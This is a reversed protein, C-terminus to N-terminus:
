HEETKKDIEKGRWKERAKEVKMEEENKKM